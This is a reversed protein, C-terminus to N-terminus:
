YKSPSNDPFLVIILVFAVCWLVFVGALILTPWASYLWSLRVGIDERGVTRVIDTYDSHSMQFSFPYLTYKVKIRIDAALRPNSSLNWVNLQNM